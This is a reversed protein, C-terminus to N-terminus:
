PKSQLIPSRVAQEPVAGVQGKAEMWQELTAKPTRVERAIDTADMKLWKLFEDNPSLGQSSPEAENRRALIVAVDDEGGEAAEGEDGRKM